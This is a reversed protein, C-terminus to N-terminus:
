LALPRYLYIIDKQLVLSIHLHGSKKHLQSSKGELYNGAFAIYFYIASLLHTLLKGTKPFQQQDEDTTLVFSNFQALVEV